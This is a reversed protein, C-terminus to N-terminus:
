RLKKECHTNKVQEPLINLFKAGLYTPQKEYLTLHHIPLVISNARRTNYNHIDTGRQLNQKKAHLATELIFLSVVNISLNNTKWFSGKVLNFQCCDALYGNLRRSM